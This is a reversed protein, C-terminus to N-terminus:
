DSHKRATARYLAFALGLGAAAVAGFAGILILSSVLATMDASHLCRPRPLRSAV